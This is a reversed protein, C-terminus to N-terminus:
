ESPNLAFKREMAVSVIPNRECKFEEPEGNEGTDRWKKYDVNRQWSPSIRYRSEAISKVAIPFTENEWFFGELNEIM